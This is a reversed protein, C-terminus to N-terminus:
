IIALDFNSYRQSFLIAFQDFTESVFDILLLEIFRLILFPNSEYKIILIVTLDKINEHGNRHKM